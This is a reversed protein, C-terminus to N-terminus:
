FIEKRLNAGDFLRGYDQLGLRRGISEDLIRSGFVGGQGGDLAVILPQGTKGLNADFHLRGLGHLLSPSLVSLLRRGGSSFLGAAVVSGGFQIGLFRVAQDQSIKREICLLAVNSLSQFAKAVNGIYV